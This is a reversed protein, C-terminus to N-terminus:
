QGPPRSVTTSQERVYRSHSSSKLGVGASAQSLRACSNMVSRRLRAIAMQTSQGTMARTASACCIRTSLQPTPSVPSVRARAMWSVESKREMLSRQGGGGVVVGAGVVVVVVGAGVVVVVVGAGVVVVVVGAGVVVVVVGAGVVVVVVGAGVVVVVVGAGVVVVVVAAGVGVGVGTNQGGPQPLPM